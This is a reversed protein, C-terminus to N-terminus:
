MLKLSIFWIILILKIKIDAFELVGEKVLRSFIEEKKEHSLGSRDINFDNKAVENYEIIQKGHKKIASIYNIGQHEITKTQKEFANGLPSYTCTAQELIQKKILLFYKKMDLYYKQLKEILVM